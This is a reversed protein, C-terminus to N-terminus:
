SAAGMVYVPSPKSGNRSGGGNPVYKGPVKVIAGQKVLGSVVAGIRAPRVPRMILQRVDACSFQGHKTLVSALAVATVIVEREAAARTEPDANMDDLIAFPNAPSREATTTTM